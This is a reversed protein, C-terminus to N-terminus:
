TQKSFTGIVGSTTSIWSLVSNITAKAASFDQAQIKVNIKSKKLFISVQSREFDHEQIEPKLSTFIIKSENESDFHISFHIVLKKNM